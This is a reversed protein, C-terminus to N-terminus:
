LKFSRNLIQLLSNEFRFPYDYIFTRQNNTSLILVCIIIVVAFMFGEIIMSDLNALKAVQITACIHMIIMM